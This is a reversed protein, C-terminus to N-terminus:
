AEKEEQEKLMRQAELEQIEDLTKGAYKEALELRQQEEELEAKKAEIERETMPTGDAHLFQDDDDDDDDDAEGDAMEKHPVPFCNTIEVVGDDEVGLLTGIVRKQGEDRRMNHELVSFLVGPHLSVSARAGTKLFLADDNSTM